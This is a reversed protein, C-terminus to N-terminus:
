FWVLDGPNWKSVNNIPISCPMIGKREEKEPQFLGIRYFSLMLYKPKINWWGFSCFCSLFRRKCILLLLMNSVERAFEQCRWLSVAFRKLIEPEIIHWYFTSVAGPRVNRLSETKIQMVKNYKTKLLQLAKEVSPQFFFWFLTPIPKNPSSFIALIHNASAM